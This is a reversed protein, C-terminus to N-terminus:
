QKPEASLGAFYASLDKVESDSLSRAIHGMLDNPDNKRTGSRWANLQAAIYAGPQGVLPPFSDGVGTNGTGHCAVCAPISRSWDGQKVLKETTSAISGALALDARPANIDLSGLYSAVAQTETDLLASAIPQMVANVRKGSRFDDLQKILYAQPLGALRPFGASDTGMGNAGHCTACALAAPSEGGKVYINQGLPEAYAACSIILTFASIGTRLILRTAVGLAKFERKKNVEGWPQPDYLALRFQAM